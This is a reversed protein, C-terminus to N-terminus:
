KNPSSLETMAEKFEAAQQILAQQLQKNGESLEKNQDWLVQIQESHQESQAKMFKAFQTANM